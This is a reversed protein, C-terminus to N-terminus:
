KEIIRDTRQREQSDEAGPDCFAKLINGLDMSRVTMTQLYFRGDDFHTIKLLRPLKSDGQMAMILSGNDEFIGIIRYGKLDPSSMLVDHWPDFQTFQIGTETESISWGSKLNKKM